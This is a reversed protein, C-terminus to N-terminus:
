KSYITLTQGPKILSSNKLGNWKNLDSVKVNFRRAITYLSDGSKVQYSTKNSAYNAYGRPWVKLKQGIRITSNQAIGNWNALQRTSVGFKRSITWLSDGSRVKYVQYRRRQQNKSLTAFFNKEYETANIIGPMKLQQGIKLFDSKLSNLQKITKVTTNHRKAILSLNDGSKVKYSVSAMLQKPDIDLLGQNFHDATEAPVLITAKKHHAPVFLRNYAPNLRYFSDKDIQAIKALEMLNAPADVEVEVFAPQNDILPLDVQYQPANLFIDSLALWKPIHRMTEKPLKLSWYDTAKGQRKNARIAKMVNGPGVNYAAVTLLWDGDFMKNLYQYYDLAAHTSAVIDRRGDYWEDITIGFGKATKPMFQWMGAAQVVSHALPDFNSEVMPTFALEVPMNRNELETIIYYLYPAAKDARKLLLHPSKLYQKKFTDIRSHSINAFTQQTALHEWLNPVFPVEDPDALLLPNESDLEPAPLPAGDEATRQPDFRRDVVTDEQKVLSSCATLSLCSILLLRKMPM